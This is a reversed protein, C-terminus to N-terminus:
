SPTAWTRVIFRRCPYEVAHYLGAAAALLSLTMVVLFGWLMLQNDDAGGAYFYDSFYHTFIELVPYHVIYICYSITGLYVMLPSAFIRAMFTRANAIYLVIFPVLPYIFYFEFKLISFIVMLIMALLCLVDCVHKKQPILHRTEHLRYTLCGIIFGAMVRLIAAGGALWNCCFLAQYIAPYIVLLVVIALLQKKTTDAKATLLIIVPCLLYAAWEASISWAPMNVSPHNLVNLLTASFFVDIGAMPRVPNWLGSFFAAALGLTVFLHVPYIRAFRKIYFARIDTRKIHHRFYRGYVHFMIFGSLIFFIDVALYGNLIFKEFIGWNIKHDFAPFYGFENM